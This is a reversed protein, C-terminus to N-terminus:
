VEIKNLEVSRAKAREREIERLFTNEKFKESVM